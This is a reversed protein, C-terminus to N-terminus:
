TMRDAADRARSVFTRADGDAGLHVAREAARQWYLSAREAEGAGLWHYALQETRDDADALEELRRAIRAHLSRRTEPGLADRLAAQTLAHRFRYAPPTRSEL